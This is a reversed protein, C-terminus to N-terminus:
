FPNGLRANSAGKADSIEFHLYFNTGTLDSTYQYVGELQDVLLNLLEYGTTKKREGIVQYKMPLGVGNDTISLFVLNSRQYLKVWIKGKERDEFAHKFVNSIVEHLILSLPHAQNINLNVIELDNDIESKEYEERYLGGVSEVIRKVIKSFEINSLSQSEYLAEHMSAMSQVRGASTLLRNQLLRSNENFAQLQMLGSVIALNNKVRHHLEALLVNKEELAQQLKNETKRFPSIDQGSLIFGTIFGYSDELPMLSGSFSYEEGCKRVQKMEGRWVRGKQLARAFEEAGKSEIVGSLVSTDQDKIEELAYGTTETFKPNVFEFHGWRGLIAIMAPNLELAKMLKSQSPYTEEPEEEAVGYVDFFSGLAPNNRLDGHMAMIESVKLGEKLIQNLDAVKGPSGNEVSLASSSEGNKPNSSKRDKL